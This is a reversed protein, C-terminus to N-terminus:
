SKKLIREKEKKDVNLMEALYEALYEAYDKTNM